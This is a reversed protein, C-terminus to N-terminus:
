SEGLIDIAQQKMEDDKLFSKLKLGTCMPPKNGRPNESEFGFVFLEENSWFKRVAHLIKSYDYGRRGKKENKKPSLQPEDHKLEERNAFIFSLNKITDRARSMKDEDARDESNTYRFRQIIKLAESKPKFPNIEMIPVTRDRSGVKQGASSEASDDSRSMSRSAAKGESKKKRGDPYIGCEKSTKILKKIYKIEVKTAFEAEPWTWDQRKKKKGQSSGGVAGLKSDDDDSSDDDSSEGDAESDEDSDQGELGKRMVELLFLRLAKLVIKTSM